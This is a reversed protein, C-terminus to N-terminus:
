SSGGKRNLSSVQQPSFNFHRNIWSLSAYWSQVSTETRKFNFAHPTDKVVVLKTNTNGNKQLGSILNESHYLPSILDKDGHIVLVPANIKDVFNIASYRSLLERHTFETHQDSEALYVQKLQTIAFKWIFNKEVSDMWDIFDTMPYYVVVAKISPNRAAFRLSHAGGLSFGLLAINTDDVFPSQAIHDIVFDVEIEKRLPVHSFTWNGDIRRQYDIAVALYGQKALDVLLGRMDDATERIGPHVIITPYPGSTVPKTWLLNARLDNISISQEWSMISENGTDQHMDPLSSCGYLGFSVLLILHFEISKLQKM